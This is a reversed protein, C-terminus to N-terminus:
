TIEYLNGLFNRYDERYYIAWGTLFVSFLLIVLMIIREFIKRQYTTWVLSSGFVLTFRYFAIGLTLLRNFLNSFFSFFVHCRCISGWIDFSGFHIEQNEFSSKFYVKLLLLSNSMCLFCDFVILWDLFTKSGQNLIFVILPVNTGLILCFTVFIAVRMWPLMSEDGISTFEHEVTDMMLIETKNFISFLLDM